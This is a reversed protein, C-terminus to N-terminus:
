EKKWTMLIFAGVCLISLGAPVAVETFHPFGAAAWVIGCVAAVVLSLFFDINSVREFVIDGRTAGGLM